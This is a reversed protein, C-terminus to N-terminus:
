APEDPAAALATLAAAAAVQEADRKGRGSGTGRAVGRVKVTVTWTLEHAPGESCVESYDPNPWGRGQALEQLRTKPDKLVEADALEELGLAAVRGDMWPGFVAVWRAYGADLWAAGLVAEVADALIRARDGDRARQKLEGKGLRLADALEWEGAVVALARENVLWTRAKSLEGQDWDPRLRLLSESALLDLAADGLFELQEFHAGGNEAAWSPHTLARELLAPDRFTYPLKV